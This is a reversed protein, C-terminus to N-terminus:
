RNFFRESAMSALDLITEWQPDMLHLATSIQTPDFSSPLGDSELRAYKFLASARAYIEASDCIYTNINQALIIARSSLVASEVINEIRDRQVQLTSVIKSYIMEEEKSTSFEIAERLVNIVQSPIDPFSPIAASTPLANENCARRLLFLGKGCSVAYGLCSSLALPMVARVGAKKKERRSQEINASLEIQKHLYFAGIIAAGLALLSGVFTAWDKGVWALLVLDGVSEWKEAACKSSFIPVCSARNVSFYIALTIWIALLAALFSSIKRM